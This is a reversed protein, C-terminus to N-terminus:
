RASSVVPAYDAVVVTGPGAEGVAVLDSGRSLSRNPAIGWASPLAPLATSFRGLVASYFEKPVDASYHEEPGTYFGTAEIHVRGDVVFTRATVSIKVKPFRYGSASPPYQGDREPSGPLPVTGSLMIGDTRELLGDGPGGGGVKGDPAPTNIYLDTIGMLRGLNVSDIRTETTLHRVGISTQGDVSWVDGLDPETLRADVTATCHACDPVDVGRASVLVASFRGRGAKTLFPFGSITVEPEYVVGPSQQLASALRHEARSAAVDDVVLATVLAIVIVIAAWASVRLARRPLHTRSTSAM